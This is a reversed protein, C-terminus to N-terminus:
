PLGPAPRPVYTLVLRPRVDVPAEISFFDVFRGDVGESASRLAIARPTISTDTLRWAKILNILEFAKVASDAPVISTSDPGIRIFLLARALDTVVASSHVRLAQVHMTDQARPADPIPRQTLLLSARIISSSDIIGEPIEFRMYVRQAPIGGVRLVNAPAPAPGLTIIQFDALDAAVAVNDPTKSFPAVVLAGVNQTDPSARFYLLPPAVGINSSFVQIETSSTATMRIGVRLRRLTDDVQQIKNLVASDSIPIILSDRAELATFTRSGLLRSPTFLPALLTASTDEGPADVDIDYVEVTMPPGLTDIRSVRLKIMASDVSEVASDEPVNARQYRTLLSDYRLVLGTILTDPRYTLVLEGETGLPPFGGITTDLAVAFITTDRVQAPQEPCLTPCALGSDLSEDCAVIAGAAAAAVLLPRARKLLSKM